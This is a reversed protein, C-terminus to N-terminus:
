AHSDDKKNLIRHYLLGIIYVVPYVLITVLVSKCLNTYLAFLLFIISLILVEVKGLIFVWNKKYNKDMKCDIYDDTLDIFAVICLSSLMEHLGFMLIGLIIILVSEQYSYISTLMKADLSEMMGLSYSAFFLSTATKLDIYCALSFILLIYPMIRIEDLNFINNQGSLKDIDQDVYDDMLKIVIGTLFICFVQKLIEFITPLM